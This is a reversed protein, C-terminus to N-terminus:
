AATTRLRVGPVDVSQDPEEAGAPIRAVTEGRASVVWVSGDETATLGVPGFGVGVYPASAAETESPSPANGTSSSSGADSSCAAVALLVAAATWTRLM